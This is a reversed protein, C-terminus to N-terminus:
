RETWRAYREREAERGARYDEETAAEGPEPALVDQPGHHASLDEVECEVGELESWTEIVLGAQEESECLERHVLKGEQFVRVEITPTDDGYAITDTM